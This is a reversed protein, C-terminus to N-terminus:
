EAMVWEGAYSPLQLVHAYAQGAVHLRLRHALRDAVLATAMGAVIGLVGLAAWALMNAASPGDGGLDQIVHGM